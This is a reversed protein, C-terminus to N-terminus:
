GKQRLSELMHLMGEESMAHSRAYKGSIPEKCSLTSHEIDHFSGKLGLACMKVVTISNVSM